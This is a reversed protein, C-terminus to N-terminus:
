KSCLLGLSTIYEPNHSGYYGIVRAGEPVKVVKIRDGGIKFIAGTNTKFTVSDLWDGVGTLSKILTSVLFDYNYPTGGWGGINPSHKVLIIFKIKM